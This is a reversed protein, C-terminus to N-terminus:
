IIQLIQSWNFILQKLMQEDQLSYQMTLLANNDSFDVPMITEWCYDSIWSFSPKPLALKKIKMCSQPFTASKQSLIEHRILSCFESILVSNPTSLLCLIHQKKKKKKKKTIYIGIYYVFRHKKVSNKYDPIQFHVTQLIIKYM